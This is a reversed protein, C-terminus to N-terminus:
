APDGRFDSDDFLNVEVIQAAIEAEIREGETQKDNSGYGIWGPAVGASAASGGTAAKPKAKASKKPM